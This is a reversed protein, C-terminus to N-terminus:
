VPSILLFLEKLTGQMGRILGVIEPTEYEIMFLANADQTTFVPIKNIIAIREM